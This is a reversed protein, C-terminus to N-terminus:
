RKDNVSEQYSEWCFENSSFHQFNPNNISRKSFDRNCICKYTLFADIDTKKYYCITKTKQVKYKDSAIEEVHKKIISDFPINNNEIFFIPNFKLLFDSFKGFKISNIHIFSDYFPICMILNDTYFNDLIDKSVFGNNIYKTNLKILDAYGDKNKIFFSIKSKLKDSPDESFFMNIGYILNTKNDLCYKYCSYFSYFNDELVFLDSISNEKQISFISKPGDPYVDSEPPDFTLISKGISFDSKFLPIIEQELSSV